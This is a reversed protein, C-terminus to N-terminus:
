MLHMITDAKYHENSISFKNVVSVCECAYVYITDYMYMYNFLHICSICIIRDMNVHINFYQDHLTQRVDICLHNIFPLM